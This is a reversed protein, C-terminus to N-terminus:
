SFQVVRLSEIMAFDLATEINKKLINTDRDVKGSIQKIRSPRIEQQYCQEWLYLDIVPLLNYRAIKERFSNIGTSEVSSPEPFKRQSRIKRILRELSELIAENKGYLNIKVLVENPNFGKQYAGVRHLGISADFYKGEPDEPSFVLSPDKDSCERKFALYSDAYRLIDKGTPETAAHENIIDQCRILAEHFRKRNAPYLPEALLRAIIPDAKDPTNEIIWKITRREDLLKAISLNDLDKWGEYRSLRFEAPIDCFRPTRGM